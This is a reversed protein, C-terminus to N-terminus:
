KVKPATVVPKIPPTTVPPKTVKPPEITGPPPTVASASPDEPEAVDTGKSADAAIIETLDLAYRERLFDALVDYEKSDESPIARLIRDQIRIKHLKVTTVDQFITGVPHFEGGAKFARVALYAQPM